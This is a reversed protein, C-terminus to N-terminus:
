STLCGAAGDVESDLAPFLLGRHQGRWGPDVPPHMSVWARDRPGLTGRDSPAEGGLVLQRDEVHHIGGGLLWVPAIRGCCGSCCGGPPSGGPGSPRASSALLGGWPDYRATRTIAGTSDATWTIDRHGNTGHHAIGSNLGTFHALVTGMRDWAYRRVSASTTVNYVQLMQTTMGLYRFRLTTGSPFTL